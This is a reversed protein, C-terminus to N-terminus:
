FIYGTITDDDDDGFGMMAGTITARTQFAALFAVRYIYCYTKLSVMFM